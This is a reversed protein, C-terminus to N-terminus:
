LKGRKVDYQYKGLSYLRDTAKQFYISVQYTINMNELIHVVEEKTIENNLFKNITLLIDENIEPGMVIDYDSKFTDTVCDCVMSLWELSVKSFRKIKLSDNYKLIYKYIFYKEKNSEIAKNNGYEKAIDELLYANFANGYESKNQSNRIDNDNLIALSAHYIVRQNENEELVEEIYEQIYCEASQHLYGHNIIIKEIAQHKYLANYAEELTTDYKKSYWKVASLYILASDSIVSM